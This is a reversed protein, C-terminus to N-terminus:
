GHQAVRGEKESVLRSDQLNLDHIRVTLEQGTQGSAAKITTLSINKNSLLTKLAELDTTRCYTFRPKKSDKDTHSYHRIRAYRV